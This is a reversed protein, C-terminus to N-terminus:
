RKDKISVSYSCPRLSGDMCINCRLRDTPVVLDLDSSTNHHYFEVSNKPPLSLKRNKYAAVTVQAFGTFLSTRKAIKVYLPSALFFSLTSILMLAAPVGFGIKWGLHDQMYVIVTFGIMVSISAFAYYWSFFIELVRHNNPNDKMDVQDAGFALSCSLGGNGISMLGFASILVAMQGSSASKCGQTPHSCPPPRAAPIMATLWLLAMGLFCVASGLGVGLFRGLYSDAIFAGVVPTFNSVASSLLLIQTAKGLHLRYSGMLYLIMNPLLGVFAISALAENAIIFPMTILGGKRKQPQQQSVMEGNAHDADDVVSSLQLEKDM